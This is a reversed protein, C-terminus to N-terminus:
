INLTDWPFFCILVGARVICFTDVIKFLALLITSHLFFCFVFFCLRYLTYPLLFHNSLLQIKNSSMFPSLQTHLYRPFAYKLCFFLLYPSGSFLVRRTSRFCLLSPLTAPLPRLSHFILDSPCHPPLTLLTHHTMYDGYPSAKARHSFPSM